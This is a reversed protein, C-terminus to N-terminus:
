HRRAHSINPQKLGSSSLSIVKRARVGRRKKEKAKEKRRKGNRVVGWTSVSRRSSAVM